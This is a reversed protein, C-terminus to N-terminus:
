RPNYKKEEIVTSFLRGKYDHGPFIKCEDPLKFIKNQVSDYLTQASGGQFDTRGCGRVFLADGTFVMRNGYVFSVCFATHGGTAMVRLAVSGCKIEDGEKVKIDAKVDDYNGIVSQVNALKSKMTGSATIHDAHCHTDVVYQLDLGLEKVFQLDRDVLELVPDILLCANTKPCGLLYTYTGSARDFFQRFILSADSTKEEKKEEAM